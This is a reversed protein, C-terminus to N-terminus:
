TLDWRMEWHMRHKYIIKRIVNRLREGMRLLFPKMTYCPMIQEARRESDGKEKKQPWLTSEALEVITEASDSCFPVCGPLLCAHTYTGPHSHRPISNFSLLMSLRLSAALLIWTRALSVLCAKHFTYLQM